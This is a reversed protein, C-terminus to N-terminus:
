AVKQKIQQKDSAPIENLKNVQGIYAQNMKRLMEIEQAMQNRSKLLNDFCPKLFQLQATIKKLAIRSENRLKFYADIFNKREVFYKENQGKKIILSEKEMQYTDLLLKLKEQKTITISSNQQKFHISSYIKIFQILETGIFSKEDLEEQMIQKRRKCWKQFLKIKNIKNEKMVELMMGIFEIVEEKEAIAEVILQIQNGISVMDQKKFKEQYQKEQTQLKKEIRVQKQELKEILKLCKQYKIDSNLENLLNSIRQNNQNIRVQRNQIMYSYADVQQM